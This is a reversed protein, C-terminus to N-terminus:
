GIGDRSKIYYKCMKTINRGAVKWFEFCEDYELDHCKTGLMTNSINDSSQFMVKGMDKEITHIGDFLNNRETQIFPCQLVVHNVDAADGLNGLININGM